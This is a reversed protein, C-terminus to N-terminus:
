TRDVFKISTRRSGLFNVGLHQEFGDKTLKEPHWMVGANNILLHVSKENTKVDEVFQKISEISSLDCQRCVVNNNFSEDVIKKRTVECKTLDRCAMIVRAGESLVFILVQFFIRRNVEDLLITRLKKESARTRVPSLRLKASCSKTEKTNLKSSIIM